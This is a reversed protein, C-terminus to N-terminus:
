APPPPPQVITLTATAQAVPGVVGNVTFQVTVQLRTAACGAFTSYPRLLNELTGPGAEYPMRVPDIVPCGPPVGTGQWTWQGFFIMQGSLPQNTCNLFTLSLTSSGPAPISPPYFAFQGIYIDSSCAAMATAANAASPALIAAIPAAAIAALMLLRRLM